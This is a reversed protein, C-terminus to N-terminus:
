AHQPGWSVTPVDMPQGAHFLSALAAHDSADLDWVEVSSRDCVRYSVRSSMNYSFINLFHGCFFYMVTCPLLWSSGLRSSPLLYGEFQSGGGAVFYASTDIMRNQEVKWATSHSSSDVSTNTFNRWLEYLTNGESFWSSWARTFTGQTGSQQVRWYVQRM